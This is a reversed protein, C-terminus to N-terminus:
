KRGRRVAKAPAVVRAKSAATPADLRRAPRKSSIDVEAASDAKRKTGRTGDDKSDESLVSEAPTPLRIGNADKDPPSASPKGSSKPPTWGGQEGHTSARAEAQKTAWSAFANKPVRRDSSEAEDEENEDEKLLEDALEGAIDDAEAEGSLLKSALRFLSEEDMGNIDIGINALNQRLAMKLAEPSIDDVVEEEEENEEEDEDLWESAGDEGEILLAEEDDIIDPVAALEVASRQAFFPANKLKVSWDPLLAYPKSAKTDLFPGPIPGTHSNVRDKLLLIAPLDREAQRKHADKMLSPVVKRRKSPLDTTTSPQMRRGRKLEQLEARRTRIENGDSDYDIDNWYEFRWLEEDFDDDGDFPPPSAVAHQAM